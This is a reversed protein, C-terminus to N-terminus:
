RVTINFKASRANQTPQEWPRRLVFVVTEEGNMEEPAQLIFISRMVAGPMQPETAASSTAQHVLALKGSGDNLEWQYGTGSAALLEVRLCEGPKLEVSEEICETSADVTITRGVTLERWAMGAPEAGAQVALPAAVGLLLALLVGILMRQM